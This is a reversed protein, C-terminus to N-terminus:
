VKQSYVHLAMEQHSAPTTKDFGGYTAKVVMGRAKFIDQIEGVSYLRTCSHAVMDEPRPRQAIEGFKLGWGGYLMRRTEKEWHFEPLSLEKEGIEWYRKPFHMEAHEANCINMYHKGGKKLSTAILDFIKLNEDDNELYGVAGDALNLVVDFENEFSVKRLDACIFQCDLGDLSAARKAENIFDSTIDVGVISCGRRAFEIAHRGFGCALDLIRETGSLGMVDIIFDVEEKTHEVWSMNQIDLSWIKRYWDLSPKKLTDM